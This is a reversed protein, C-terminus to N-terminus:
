TEYIRRTGTVRLPFPQANEGYLISSLSIELGRITDYVMDVADFLDLLSIDIELEMRERQQPDAFALVGNPPYPPLDM